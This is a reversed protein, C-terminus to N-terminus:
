PAARRQETQFGSPEAELPLKSFREATAKLLSTVGTAAAAIHKPDAAQVGQDKLLDAVLTPNM